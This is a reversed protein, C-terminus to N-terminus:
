TISVNNPTLADIHKGSSRKYYGDMFSEANLLMLISVNELYFFNELFMGAVVYTLYHKTTPNSSNKPVM